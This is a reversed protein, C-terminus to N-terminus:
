AENNAKCDKRWVAKIPTRAISTSFSHMRRLVGKGETPTEDLASVDM